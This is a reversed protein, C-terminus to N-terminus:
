VITPSSHAEVLFWQAAVSQMWTGINSAFQAIFLSRYLRNRLPTWSSPEAGNGSDPPDTVASDIPSSGNAQGDPSLLISRRISDGCDISQSDTVGPASSPEMPSMLGVSEASRGPM